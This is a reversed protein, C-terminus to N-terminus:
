SPEVWLIIDNKAVVQGDEADIRSIRGAAPSKILNMVKM